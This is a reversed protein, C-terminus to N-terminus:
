KDANKVEREKFHDRMAPTVITTTRSRVRGDTSDAFRLTNERGSTNRRSPDRKKKRNM